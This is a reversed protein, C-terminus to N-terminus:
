ARVEYGAGRLAEDHDLGGRFSGPLECWNTINGDKDAAFIYTEPGSMWAVTASVVVYETPGDETPMPPECRYLRANGTWGGKKLTVQTATNSHPTRDM